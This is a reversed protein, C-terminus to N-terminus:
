RASTTAVWASATVNAGRESPSIIIVPTNDSMNVPCARSVPLSCTDTSRSTAVAVLWVLRKHWAVIAEAAAETNVESSAM